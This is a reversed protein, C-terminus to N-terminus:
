YPLNDEQKKNGQTDILTLDRLWSDQYFRGKFERTYLSIDAQYLQNQEFEGKEATSGTVRVVFEDPYMSGDATELILDRAFWKGSGDKKDGSQLMGITKIKVELKM